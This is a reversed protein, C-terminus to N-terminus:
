LACTHIYMHQVCLAVACYMRACRCVCAHVCGSMCAHIYPCVCACMCLVCARVCACCVRVCVHVVCMYACVCACCVRMCVCMCVCVRSTVKSMSDKLQSYDAGGSSSAAPALVGCWMVGCWMVCCEAVACVSLHHVDLLELLASESRKSRGFYDDSGFGTSGEFRNHGGWPEEGEGGRNAGSLQDSGFGRYRNRKFDEDTLSPPTLVSVSLSSSLHPSLFCHLLQGM